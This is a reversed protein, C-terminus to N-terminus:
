APPSITREVSLRHGMIHGILVQEIVQDLSVVVGGLLMVEATRALQDDDLGAVFSRASGANRQLTRLVQERGVDAFREAFHANTQDLESRSVDLRPDGAAIHRLWGVHFRIALAVHQAVFGVPWQEEACILLWDEASCGEILTTFEGVTLDFKAALQEARRSM